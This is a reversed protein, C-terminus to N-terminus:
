GTHWNDKVGVRNPLKVCPVLQRRLISATANATAKTKHTEDTPSIKMNLAKAGVEETAVVTAAIDLFIDTDAM